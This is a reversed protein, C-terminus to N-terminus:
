LSAMVTVITNQVVWRLLDAADFARDRNVPPMTDFMTFIDKFTLVKEEGIAVLALKLEKVVVKFESIVGGILEDTLDAATAVLPGITINWGAVHDPIRM